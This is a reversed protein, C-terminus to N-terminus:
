QQRREDLARTLERAIWESMTVDEAAALAKIARRLRRPFAFVQLTSTPPLRKRKTAARM